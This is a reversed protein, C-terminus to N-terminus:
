VPSHLHDRIEIVLHGAVLPKIRMKLYLSDDHCAELVVVQRVEVQLLELVLEARHKDERDDPLGGLNYLDFLSSKMWIDVCAMSAIEDIDDSCIWGGANKRFVFNVTETVNKYFEDNIVVQYKNSTSTPRSYNNKEM